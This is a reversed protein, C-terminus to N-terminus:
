IRLRTVFFNESSVVRGIGTASLPRFATGIARIDANRIAPLELEPRQDRANVGVTLEFGEGVYYPGPEVEARVRLPAADRASAPFYCLVEGCLVCLACLFIKCSIMPCSAM